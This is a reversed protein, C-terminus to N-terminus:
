SPAKVKTHIYRPIGGEAKTAPDQYKAKVEDTATNNNIAMAETMFTARITKLERTLAGVDAPAAPAAGGELRKVTDAIDKMLPTINRPGVGPLAWLQEKTMAALDAFSAIASLPNQVTKELFKYLQSTAIYGGNEIMGRKFVSELTATARAAMKGELIDPTKEAMDTLSRLTLDKTEPRAALRTFLGKLGESPKFVQEVETLTLDYVVVPQVNQKKRGPKKPNEKRKTYTRRGELAKAENDAEYKAPSSVEKAGKFREWDQTRMFGTQRQPRDDRKETADLVADLDASDDELAGIRDVLGDTRERRGADRM